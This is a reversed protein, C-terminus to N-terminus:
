IPQFATLTFLGNRCVPGFPWNVRFRDNDHTPSVALHDPRPQCQGAGQESPAASTGWRLLMGARQGPQLMVPEPAAGSTRHMATPLSQGEPGILRLEGYGELVCAGAFTNTVRLMAQRGGDVPEAPGMRGRLMHAGCDPIDQGGPLEVLGDADSTRPSATGCAALALGAVVAVLAALLGRPSDARM